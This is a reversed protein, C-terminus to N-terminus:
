SQSIILGIWRRALPEADYTRSLEARHAEAYELALALPITFQPRGLQEGVIQLTAHAPTIQIPVPTVPQHFPDVCLAAPSTVLYQRCVFPRDSYISCADDKLFPCVLGLAFYRQAIERADALQMQPDRHLYAKALGADHLTQANAAFRERVETQRPQPLAEVLL